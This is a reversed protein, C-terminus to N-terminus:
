ILFLVGLGVFCGATLFPMAPYFHGRKGYYFLLTLSITVFIPIILVKLFAIEKAIYLSKIMYEMVVAAFLMPFAIDGGGLVAEAVEVKQKVKKKIKKAVSKGRVTKTRKKGPKHEYSISFGAFAREKMISKAITVMHRTKWVAIADYVSIGILLISIWFIDFIPAFVLVLGAYMFIETINHIITNQKKLKIVALIFALIFAYLAPIVVGFAVTMTMFVAIFFLIKWWNIRGIKILFLLLGTGILFAVVVLLFSDVGTTEPRPGIATDPHTVVTAGSPLTTVVIDKNVLYLGIIQAIFFIAILFIIIRLDHKM